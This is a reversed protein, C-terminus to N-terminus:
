SFYRFICAFSKPSSSKGVGYSLPQIEVDFEDTCPRPLQSLTEIQLYAMLHNGVAFGLSRLQWGNKDVNGSPGGLFYFNIRSKRTSSIEARNMSVDIIRM